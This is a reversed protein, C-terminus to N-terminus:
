FAILKKINVKIEEFLEEMKEQVGKHDRMTALRKIKAENEALKKLNNRTKSAKQLAISIPEKFTEFNEPTRLDIKAVEAMTNIQEYAAIVKKYFQTHAKNVLLFDSMTPFDKRLFQEFATEVARVIVTMEAKVSAEDKLNVGLSKLNNLMIDKKIAKLAEKKDVNTLKTLELNVQELLTTWDEPLNSRKAKEISNRFAMLLKDQEKPAEVPPIPMQRIVGKKVDNTKVFRVLVNNNSAYEFQNLMELIKNKDVQKTKLGLKLVKMYAVKGEDGREKYDFKVFIKIFSKIAFLKWKEIFAIPADYIAKAKSNQTKDQEKRLDLLKEAIEVKGLPLHFGMFLNKQKSNEIYMVPYKETESIRTNTKKFLVAPKDLKGKDMLELLAKVVLVNLGLKEVIAKQNKKLEEITM